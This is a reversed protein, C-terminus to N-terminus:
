APRRDCFLELGLHSFNGVGGSSYALEGPKAKALAILDAVTKGAGLPAGGAHRSVAGDHGGAVFDRLPSYPLKAYLSPNVVM